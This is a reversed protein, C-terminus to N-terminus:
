AHHSLRIYIGHAYFHKSPSDSGWLEHVVFLISFAWMLIEHDGKLWLSFWIHLGYTLEMNKNETVIPWLMKDILTCYSIILHLIKSSILSAFPRLHLWYWFYPQMVNQCSWGCHCVQLMVYRPTGWIMLSSFMTQNLSVKRSGDKMVIVPGISTLPNKAMSIKEHCQQSSTTHIHLHILCELSRKWGDQAEVNLGQMFWCRCPYWPLFGL